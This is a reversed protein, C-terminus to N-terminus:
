VMEGVSAKVGKKIRSLEKDERTSNILLSTQCKFVITVILM